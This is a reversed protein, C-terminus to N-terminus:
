LELTWQYQGKHNLYSNYIEGAIRQLRYLQLSEDIEDRDTDHNVKGHGMDHFCNRSFVHLRDIAKQLEDIKRDLQRNAYLIGVIRKLVTVDPEEPLTSLDTDLTKSQNEERVYTQWAEISFDTIPEVATSEALSITSANSTTSLRSSRQSSGDDRSCSKKKPATLPKLDM